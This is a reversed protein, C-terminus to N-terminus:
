TTQSFGANSTPTVETSPRLHSIIGDVLKQCLARTENGVAIGASSLPPVKLAERKAAVRAQYDEAMPNVGRTRDRVDANSDGMQDYEEEFLQGHLWQVAQDRRERVALEADAEEESRGAALLERRQAAKKEAEHREVRNM